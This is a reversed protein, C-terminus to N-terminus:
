PDNLHDYMQRYMFDAYRQAVETKHNECKDNRRQLESEITQRAAPSLNRGQMYQLECIDVVSMSQLNAPTYTGCGALAALSLGAIASLTRRRRLTEM